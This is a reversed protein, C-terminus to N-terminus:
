VIILFLVILFYLYLNKTEEAMNVNM